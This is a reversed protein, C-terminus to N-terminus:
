PLYQVGNAVMSGLDPTPPQVGLGLFSLSSAIMIVFGLDLTVKTLITPICNPLIERLLLHFPGAGIVKAAVVYDERSESRAMNYALRAYWPWWMASVALMANTLTPELLGMIAMALVLPPVALFVDTVRMILYDAWGGFYGAALGLMVGIPVALSLVVIGLMLSVRYGYIIRSLLDRGINDTGLWYQTDPSRNANAFDVFSGAHRPYPAIYSAFCASLVIIAVLFLGVISLPNRCFKYWGLLPFPM